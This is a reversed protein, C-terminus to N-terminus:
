CFPFATLYITMQTGLGINSSTSLRHQPQCFIYEKLSERKGAGQCRLLCASKTTRLTISGVLISTAEKTCLLAPVYSFSKPLPMYVHNYSLSIAKNAAGANSCRSLNHLPNTAPELKQHGNHICATVEASLLRMLKLVAQTRPM